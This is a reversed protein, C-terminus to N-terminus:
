QVAPCRGTVQEKQPTSEAWPSAAASPPRRFRKARRSSTTIGAQMVYAWKESNKDFSVNREVAKVKISM